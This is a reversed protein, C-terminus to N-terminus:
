HTMLYIFKFFFDVGLVSFLNGLCHEFGLMQLLLLVLLSTVSGLLPCGIVVKVLPAATLM